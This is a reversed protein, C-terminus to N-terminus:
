QIIGINEDGAIKQAAIIDLNALRDYEKKLMEMEYKREAEKAKLRENVGQDEKLFKMDVMDADSELKRAQAAERMAKAQKLKADVENEGARAYKDRIDAKLKENELQLNMIELEKTKQEAADPQPQFEKIKKELEPM